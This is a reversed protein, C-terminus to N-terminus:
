PLLELLDHETECVRRGIAALEVSRTAGSLHVRAQTLCIAGWKLTGLVQWWSVADPDVPRGSAAAYAALLEERTAMGGVEAAAGFRWARLCLWGLDEAPDGLHALEWDLVARLGDPGLLLNGLRFDGHVPVPEVAPPRHEELWRIALEFAPHPEDAADITAVVDALQDVHPLPPLADVPVAHLRALAQACDAAFAARAGAYAPERLLRRALTEGEVRECLLHAAGGEDGAAVVAAVPVGADGAARLLAAQTTM